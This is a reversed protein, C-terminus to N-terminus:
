TRSILGIKKIYMGHVIELDIHGKLLIIHSKHKLKSNAALNQLIFTEILGHIQTRSARGIMKIATVHM